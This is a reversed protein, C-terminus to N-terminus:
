KMNTFNREICEMKERDEQHDQRIMVQSHFKAETSEKNSPKM